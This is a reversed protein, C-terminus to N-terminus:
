VCQRISKCLKKKMKHTYRLFSNRQGGCGVQRRHYFRIAGFKDFIKLFSSIQTNRLKILKITTLSTVAINQFKIFTWPLYSFPELSRCLHQIDPILCNPHFFSNFIHCKMCFSEFNTLQLNNDDSVFLLLSATIM